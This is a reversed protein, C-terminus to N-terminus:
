ADPEAKRASPRLLDLPNVNSVLLCALLIQILAARVPLVFELGNQSVLRTWAFTLAVL